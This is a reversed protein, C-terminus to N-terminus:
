NYVLLMKSKAIIMGKPDVCVFEKCKHCELIVKKRENNHSPIERGLDVWCNGSENREPEICYSGDNNYVYNKDKGIFNSSSLEPENSQDNHM